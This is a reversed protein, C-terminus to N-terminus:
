SIRKKARKPYLKNNFKFTYDNSYGKLQADTWLCFRRDRVRPTTDFHYWGDHVYVLNWYHRGRNTPYRNIMINSIGARSLLLRSASYYTYCDGSRYRFGNLGSSRWNPHSANHVYSMHGKVYSYIRRAKKEKSWSKRTISALIKDAAAEAAGPVIVQVKAWSSAKNGAEDVAHYYIKYKGTKNWNIKSTDVTVKVKGDRSDTATVHEKFSYSNKRDSYYTRYADGHGSYSKEKVWGTIKPAKTDKTGWKFEYKNDSVNYIHLAKGSYVEIKILELNDTQNVSPSYASLEVTSKPGIDAAKKTYVVGPEGPVTYTLVVKKVTGSSSKNTVTNANESVVIESASVPISKPRRAKKKVTVTAIKKKSGNVKRYIVAKGAKKGIVNGKNDVCAISPKSSSFTVGESGASVNLKNGIKVTCKKGGVTQANAAVGSILIIIAFTLLVVISRKLM